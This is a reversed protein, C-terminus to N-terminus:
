REGCHQSHPWPRAGDPEQVSPSLHVPRIQHLQRRLLHPALLLGTTSAPLAPWVLKCALRCPPLAPFPLSSAPSRRFRVAAESRPGGGCRLVARACLVSSVASTRWLPPCSWSALSRAAGMTASCPLSLRLSLNLQLVSCRTLQAARRVTFCYRWAVVAHMGGHCWVMHHRCALDEHAAHRSRSAAGAPRARNCCTPHCGWM